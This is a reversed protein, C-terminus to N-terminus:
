AAVTAWSPVGRKRKSYPGLLIPFLPGHGEWPDDVDDWEMPLPWGAAVVEPRAERPIDLKHRDWVRTIDELTDLNVWKGPKRAQVAVSQRLRGTEEAIATLTMGAAQLSCLRRHARWSPQLDAREADMRMVLQRFNVGSMSRGERLKRSMSAPEQVFGATRVLATITYGIDTWPSLFDLVVDNAVPSLAVGEAKRHVPCLGGLASYPRRHCTPRACRKPGEAGTM